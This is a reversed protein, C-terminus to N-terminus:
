SAVRKGAFALSSAWDKHAYLSVVSQPNDGDGLMVMWLKGLEDGFVALGNGETCVLAVRTKTM